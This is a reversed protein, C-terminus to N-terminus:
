GTGNPIFESQVRRGMPHLLHLIVYLNADAKWIEFGDAFLLDALLNQAGQEFAGVDCGAGVARTGTAYNLYFASTTNRFRRPRAPAV